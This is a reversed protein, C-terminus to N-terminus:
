ISGFLFPSFFFFLRLDSSFCNIRMEVWQVIRLYIMLGWKLCISIIISQSRSFFWTIAWLYTIKVQWWLLKKAEKRSLTRILLSFGFSGLFLILWLIWFKPSSLDIGMEVEFILDSHRFNFNPCDVLGCEGTLSCAIKIIIAQAQGPEM